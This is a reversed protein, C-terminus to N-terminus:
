REDQGSVVCAGSGSRLWDALQNIVHTIPLRRKGKLACEWVEAVRWGSDNLLQINISDREKNKLIKEEWFEKRSAPLKFMPCNDHGHWFCGQVFIVANYKPLVIDPKGPLDKRHLRFRFGQKFLAKRLLIEPKTNKGKIAAMNRSRTARDHVDSM